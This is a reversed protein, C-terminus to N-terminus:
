RGQGDATADAAPAPPHDDSRGTAPDAHTGFPTKTASRGNASAEPSGPAAPTPLSDCYTAVDKGDAADVLRKWAAAEMAKGRGLSNEYARCLAENSWPVHAPDRPVRSTPIGPVRPTTPATHPTPSSSGPSEFPPIEPQKSPLPASTSSRPEPEPTETGDSPDHSAVAAFAVGGLTLSAALAALASKLSRGMGRETAPRWDERRGTRRSEHLGADRATRFAAVAARTSADDVDRPRLAAALAAEVEDHERGSNEASM